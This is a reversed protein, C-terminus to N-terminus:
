TRDCAPLHLSSLQSSLRLGQAVINDASLLKTTSLAASSCLYKHVTGLQTVLQVQQFRAAPVVLRQQLTSACVRPAPKLVRCSANVVVPM